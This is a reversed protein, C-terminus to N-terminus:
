SRPLDCIQTVFIKEIQKRKWKDGSEKNLVMITSENYGFFDNLNEFGFKEYYSPLVSRIHEEHMVRGMCYDGYYVWGAQIVVPCGGVKEVTKVFDGLLREGAGCEMSELLDIVVFRESICAFTDHVYLPENDGLVGSIVKAKLRAKGDNSRVTILGTNMINDKMKLGYSIIEAGLLDFRIMKLVKRPDTEGAWECFANSLMIREDHTSYEEGLGLRKAVEYGVTIHNAKKNNEIYNGM